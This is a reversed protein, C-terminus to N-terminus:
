RFPGSDRIADPPVVLGVHPDVRYSVARGCLRPLATTRGERVWTQERSGHAGRDEPESLCRQFNRGPRPNAAVGAAMVKRSVGVQNPMRGCETTNVPSSGAIAVAATLLTPAGPYEVVEM